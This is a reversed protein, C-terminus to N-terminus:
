HKLWIKVEYYILARLERLFAKLIECTRCAQKKAQKKSAKVSAVAQISENRINLFLAQLFVESVLVVNALAAIGPSSKKCCVALSSYKV